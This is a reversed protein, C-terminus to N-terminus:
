WIWFDNIVNQNYSHKDFDRFHAISQNEEYTISKSMLSPISIQHQHLVLNFFMKYHPNFKSNFNDRTVCAGVSAIRTIM